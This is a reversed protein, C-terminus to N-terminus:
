YAERAGREMTRHVDARSEANSRKRLDLVMGGHGDSGGNVVNETWGLGELWLKANVKCSDLPALLMKVNSATEHELYKCFVEHLKSGTGRNAAIGFVEVTASKVKPDYWVIGTVRGHNFQTYFWSDKVRASPPRQGQICNQLVTHLSVLSSNAKFPREDDQGPTGHGSDGFADFADKLEARGRETVFQCHEQTVEAPSLAMYGDDPWGRPPQPQAIPVHRTAIEPNCFFVCKVAVWSPPPNLWPVSQHWAISPFAGTHGASTFFFPEFGYVRMATISESCQVNVTIADRHIRGSTNRVDDHWGFTTQNTSDFIIVHAQPIFKDWKAEPVGFARLVGNMLELFGPLNDRFSILASKTFAVSTRAQQVAARVPVVMNDYTAYGPRMTDGVILIGEPTRNRRDLVYEALLRSAKRDLNTEWVGYCSSVHKSVYQTLALPYHGTRLRTTARLRLAEPKEFLQLRKIWNSTGREDTEGVDAESWDFLSITSSSAM